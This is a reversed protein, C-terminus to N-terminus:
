RPWWGNSSMGACASCSICVSRGSRWSMSRAATDEPDINTEPPLQALQERLSIHRLRSQTLERELQRAIFPKDDFERLRRQEEIFLGGLAETLGSIELRERM